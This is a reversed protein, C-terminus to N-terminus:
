QERFGSWDQWPKPGREAGSGAARDAKTYRSRKTLRLSRSLAVIASTQGAHARLTARLERRMAAEVKRRDKAPVDTFDGAV